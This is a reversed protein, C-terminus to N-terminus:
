SCSELCFDSSMESPLTSIPRCSCVRKCAAMSSPRLVMTVCPTRLSTTSRTNSRTLSAQTVEFPTM